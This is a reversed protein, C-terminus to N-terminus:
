ESWVAYENGCPETFHFRKGGPFSFTPKTIAGGALTIKSIVTSLDQHYIVLLPSGQSLCFHQGSTYFGGSIGANTFCTYEPGYDVFEWGFVQNFFNKSGEIDNTPLELYNITNNVTTM